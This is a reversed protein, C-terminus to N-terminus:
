QFLEMNDPLQLISELRLMPRGVCTTLRTVDRHSSAIQRCGYRCERPACRAPDSNPSPWLVANCGSISTAVTTVKVRSGSTGTFANPWVAMLGTSRPSLLFCERCEPLTNHMTVARALRWAWGVPRPHHVWGTCLYVCDSAVRGKCMDDAISAPVQTPVRLFLPSRFHSRCRHDNVTNTPKFYVPVIWLALVTTISFLWMAFLLVVRVMKGDSLVHRSVICMIQYLTNTFCDVLLSKHICSTSTFTYIDNWSFFFCFFSFPPHSRSPMAFSLQAEAIM